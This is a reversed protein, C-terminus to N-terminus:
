TLVGRMAISGRKWIGGGLKIGFVRFEGEIWYHALGIGYNLTILAAIGPFGARGMNWAFGSVGLLVLVGVWWWTKWGAALIVKSCLGISTTWHNIRLTALIILAAWQPHQFQALLWQPYPPRLVGLIGLFMAVPISMAVSAVVCLSRDVWRWGPKGWLRRYIQVVGFNQSATHWADWSGRAVFAYPALWGLDTWFLTALLIMAGPVIIFNVPEEVAQQRLQPHGAVMAMPGLLHVADLTLIAVMCWNLIQRYDMLALCALGLGIPLGSWIFLGDWWPARICRM